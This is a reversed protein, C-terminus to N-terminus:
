VTIGARLGHVTLVGDGLVFREVGAVAQSAPVILLAEDVVCREGAAKIHMSGSARPRAAQDVVVEDVVVVATAGAALTLHTGLLPVKGEQLELELRGSVRLLDLSGDSIALEQLVLTGEGRQSRLRVPPADVVADGTTVSVTLQGSFATGDSAARVRGSGRAEARLIAVTAVGAHVTADVIALGVDTVALDIQHHRDSVVVSGSAAGPRLVIPLVTAGVALEVRGDVIRGAVEPLRVTFRPSSSADNASREVHITAGAAHLDGVSVESSGVAVHARGVHVDLEDLDLSFPGGALDLDVTVRCRGSVDNVDFAAQRIAGHDVDVIGAIRLHGLGYHVDLSTEPGTTLTVATGLELPIPRPVVHRADVVIGATDIVARDDTSPARDAFLFAVLDKLSEPIVFGKLVLASLNLDPFRDLNAVVAGNIDLSVGQVSAGLPLKLAPELRGRTRGREIRGGPSVVVDLIVVTGAEIVLSLPGAKITQPLLPITVTAEGSDAHELVEKLAITGVDVAAVSRVGDVGIVGDAGVMGVAPREVQEAAQRMSEARERLTSRLREVLADVDLALREAQLTIGAGVLEKM